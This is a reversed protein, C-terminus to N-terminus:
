KARVVSKATKERREYAKVLVLMLVLWVATGAVMSGVWWVMMLLFKSRLHAWLAGLPLVMVFLLFLYEPYHSRLREWASPEESSMAVSLVM